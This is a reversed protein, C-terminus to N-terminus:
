FRAYVKMSIVFTFIIDLSLNMWDKEKAHMQYYMM